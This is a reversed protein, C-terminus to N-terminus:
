SVVSIEWNGNTKQHRQWQQAPRAPENGRRPATASEWPGPQGDSWKVEQTFVTTSTGTELVLLNVEGNLRLPLDMTWVTRKVMSMSCNSMVTASAGTERDQLERTCVHLLCDLEWPQVRQPKRRTPCSMMANILQHPRKLARCAPVPGPTTDVPVRGGYNPADRADDHIFM